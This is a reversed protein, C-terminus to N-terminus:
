MIIEEGGAECPGDGRKISDRGLLYIFSIYLHFLFTINSVITHLQRVVGTKQNTQKALIRDDWQVFFPADARLEYPRTKLYCVFYTKTKTQM